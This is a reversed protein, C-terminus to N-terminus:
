SFSVMGVVNSKSTSRVRKRPIYEVVEEHDDDDEDYVYEVIPSLTAYRVSAERRRPSLYVYQPSSIVPLKEAHHDDEEDDDVYYYRRRPSQQGYLADYMEREHARDARRPMTSLYQEDSSDLNEIM